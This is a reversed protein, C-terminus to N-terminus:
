KELNELILDFLKHVEGTWKIKNVFIEQMVDKTFCGKLIKTEDDDLHNNIEISITM